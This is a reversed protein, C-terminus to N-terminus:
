NLFGLLRSRVSCCSAMRPLSTTALIRMRLSSSKRLHGLSMMTQTSGMSVVPAVEMSTGRLLPVSTQLHQLEVGSVFWTLLPTQMVDSVNVNDVEYLGTDRTAGSTGTMVNWQLAQGSQYSVKERQLISPLAVYDQLDYSLDTWRLRGLDKQTTTILDAIDAAQLTAM